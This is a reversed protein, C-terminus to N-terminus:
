PAAVVKLPILPSRNIINEGNCNYQGLRSFLYDGPPLWTPIERREDTQFSGPSTIGTFEPYVYWYLRYKVNNPIDRMQLISYSIRGICEVIRVTHARIFVVEGPHFEDTAMGDGHHLYPAGVIEFPPILRNQYLQRMHSVGLLTIVAMMIIIAITKIRDM